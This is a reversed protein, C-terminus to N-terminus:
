AVGRANQRVFQRGADTLKWVGPPQRVGHRHKERHWALLGDEEAQVVVGRWWEACHGGTIDLIARWTLGDAFRGLISAPSQHALPSQANRM